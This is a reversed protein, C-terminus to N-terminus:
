DNYYKIISGTLEKYIVQLEPSFSLLDFQKEMTNNDNRIAPGTQASEPGLAIAKSITEMILPELIDFNYGGKIAIEKGRTLLHNTFNNVFVAALHLIKRHESDAFSVRSTISKAVTELTLLTDKDSSELLLPINSFDVDRGLTFTQLPYFVAKRIIREPFVELGVSGATHAVISSSSCRLTKLLNKINHDPVAILILDSTEPFDPTDSWAANCSEALKRSSTGSESIVLDIVFGKKFLEKCIASGVRGAGAFSIRYQNM